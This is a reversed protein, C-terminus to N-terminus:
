SRRPLLEGDVVDIGPIGRLVEAADSDDASDEDASDDDDRGTGSDM